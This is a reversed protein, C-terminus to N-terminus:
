SIDAKLVKELFHSVDDRIDFVIRFREPIGDFRNEEQFITRRCTEKLQDDKTLDRAVAHLMLCTTLRQVSPQAWEPM